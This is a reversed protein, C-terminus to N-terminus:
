AAGSHAAYAFATKQPTPERVSSGISLSAGSANTLTYLKCERGDPAKGFPLVTISM